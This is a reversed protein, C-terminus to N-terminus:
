ISLDTTATHFNLPFFASSFFSAAELETHLNLLHTVNPLSSFDLMKKNTLTKYVQPDTKILLLM